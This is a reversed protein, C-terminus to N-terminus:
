TKEDCYGWVCKERLDSEFQDQLKDPHAQPRKSKM